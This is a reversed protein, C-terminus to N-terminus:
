TINREFPSNQNELPVLTYRDSPTGQIGTVPISQQQYVPPAGYIDVRGTMRGTGIASELPDSFPKSLALNGTGTTLTPRALFKYFFTRLM